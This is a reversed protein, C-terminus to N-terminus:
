NVKGLRFTAQFTASQAISEEALGLRVLSRLVATANAPHRGFVWRCYKRFLGVTTGNGNRLAWLALRQYGSLRRQLWRGQMRDTRASRIGARWCVEIMKGRVASLLQRADHTESKNGIWKWELKLRGGLEYGVLSGPVDDGSPLRVPCRYTFAYTRQERPRAPASPYGATDLAVRVSELCSWRSETTFVELRGIQGTPELISGPFMTQVAAEFLHQAREDYLLDAALGAAGDAGTFAILQGVGAPPVARPNVEIGLMRTFLNCTQRYFLVAVGDALLKTKSTPACNPIADIITELLRQSSVGRLRYVPRWWHVFLKFPPLLNQLEAKSPLRERPIIPTRTIGKTSM